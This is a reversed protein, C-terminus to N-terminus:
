EVFKLPRGRGAFSPYKAKARRYAENFITENYREGFHNVAADIVRPRKWHEHKWPTGEPPREMIGSLWDLMEKIFADNEDDDDWIAGVLAPVPGIKRGAPVADLERELDEAEVFIHHSPPRDHKFPHDLNFVCSSLRVRADLEWLSPPIPELPGGGLPRAYTRLRGSVALEGFFKSVHPMIPEAFEREHAHRYSTQVAKKWHARCIAEDQEKEWRLIVSPPPEDSEFARYEAASMISRIYPGFQDHIEPVPEDGVFAANAPPLQPLVPHALWGPLDSNWDYCLAAGTRDLAEALFMKASSPWEPRRTHISWDLQANAQIPPEQM